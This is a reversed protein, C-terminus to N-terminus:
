TATSLAATWPCAGGGNILIGGSERVQRLHINVGWLDTLILHGSTITLDFLGIPTTTAVITRAQLTHGALDITASQGLFINSCDVDHTLRVDTTIPVEYTGCVAPDGLPPDQAAAPDAMRLFMPASLGVVVGVVTWRKKM